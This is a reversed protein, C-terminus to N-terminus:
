CINHMWEFYGILNDTNFISTEVGGNRGDVRSGNINNASDVEGFAKVTKNRNSCRPNVQHTQSPGNVGVTVFDRILRSAKTLKVFDLLLVAQLTNMRQSTNRGDENGGSSM